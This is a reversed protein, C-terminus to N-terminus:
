YLCSIRIFYLIKGVYNPFCLMKLSYFRSFIIELINLSVYKVLIEDLVIQWWCEKVKTVWRSHAAQEEVCWLWVVFVWFPIINYWEFIQLRAKKRTDELLIFVKDMWLPKNWYLDLPPIIWLVCVIVRIGCLIRRYLITDQCLSGACVWWAESTGWMREWKCLGEERM